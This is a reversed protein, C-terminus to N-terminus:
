AYEMKRQKFYVAKLGCAALLDKAASFDKGVAGAKHADSGITAYRGGCDAYAKSVPLLAKMASRSDLRRTNLELVINQAITVQLVERILGAFEHYYIDPEAYPAYRAIYDIHGLVDVFAHQKICEAMVRFYKAYVAQKSQKEYFSPEYLDVGDLVHISGIVCDFDNERILRSNRECCDAQMGIEVGLLLSASRYAAYKAFYDAPEFVYGGGPFDFDIHETLVLGINQERAASLAAELPMESDFSIETHIHSDFIM